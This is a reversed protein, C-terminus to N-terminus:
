IWCTLTMVSFGIKHIKFLFNYSVKTGYNTIGHSQVIKFATNLDKLSNSLWLWSGGKRTYDGTEGHPWVQFASKFRISLSEDEGYIGHVAYWYM